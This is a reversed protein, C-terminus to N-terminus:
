EETQELIIKNKFGGREALKKLRIEEIAEKTFGKEEIITDLVELIDALEEENRDAAFEEVEERLKAVLRTFYEEGEIVHSVSKIGKNELIEPIKDRVLKDFKIIEGM